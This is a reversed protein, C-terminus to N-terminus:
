HEPSEVETLRAPTSVPTSPLREHLTDQLDGLSPETGEGQGAEGEAGLVKLGASLFASLRARTEDTLAQFRALENQLRVLEHEAREQERALVDLKEARARAKRLTVEADRRASERVHEAYNTAFLFLKSTREAHERYRSLEEERRRVEELLEERERLLEDHERLLKGHNRLLEDRSAPATEPLPGGGGEREVVSAKGSQEVDSRQM